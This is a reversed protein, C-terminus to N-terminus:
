VWTRQKWTQVMDMFQWTTATGPSGQGFRGVGDADIRSTFLWYLLGFRALRRIQHTTAGFASASRTLELLAKSLIVKSYLPDANFDLGALQDENSQGLQFEM